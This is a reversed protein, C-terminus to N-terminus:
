KQYTKKEQDHRHSDTKQLSISKFPQSSLILLIRSLLVIIVAPSSFWCFIIAMLKIILDLAHCINYKTIETNWPLQAHSQLVVLVAVM